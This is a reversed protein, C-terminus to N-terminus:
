SKSPGFSIEKIRFGNKPTGEPLIEGAPVEISPLSPEEQKLRKFDKATIHSCSLYISAAKAEPSADTTQFIVELKRNLNRLNDAEKWVNEQDLARCSIDHYIKAASVVARALL